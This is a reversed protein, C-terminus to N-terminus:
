QQEAFWAHVCTQVRAAVADVSGQADVTVWSSRHQEALSRYGDRVRGFFEAGIDEIRDRRNGVRGLATSVDLDLFVTLDAQLGQTAFEIMTNLLSLDLGRGYGQYALTSAGYRDSILDRGAQLAPRVVERVHQAKDAIILLAETRDDLQENRPDLLISRISNGVATAGFQFTVDCGLHQALKRVQTSKGSGDIGEFAILRGTM